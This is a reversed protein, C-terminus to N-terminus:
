KTVTVKPVDNVPERGLKKISEIFADAKPDTLPSLQWFGAQYAGSEVWSRPFDDILIDCDRGQILESPISVIVATKGCCRAPANSDPSEQTIRVRQGVRFTAM